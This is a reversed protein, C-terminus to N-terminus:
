TYKTDNEKEKIYVRCNTGNKSDYAIDSVKTNHFLWVEIVFGTVVTIFLLSIIIKKM